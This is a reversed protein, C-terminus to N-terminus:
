DGTAIQEREIKNWKRRPINSKSRLVCVQTDIIIACSVQSTCAHIRQAPYRAFSSGFLIECEIGHRSSHKAFQHLHHYHVSNKREKSKRELMEFNYKNQFRFATWKIIHFINSCFRCWRMNTGISYTTLYWLGLLQVTLIFILFSFHFPFCIVRASWCIRFKTLHLYTLAFYHRHSCCNRIPITSDRM